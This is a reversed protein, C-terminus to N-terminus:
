RLRSKWYMRRKIDNNNNCYKNNRNPGLHTHLNDPLTPDKYLQRYHGSRTICRRNRLKADNKNCM